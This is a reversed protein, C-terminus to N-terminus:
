IRNKTKINQSTKLDKSLVGCCIARRLAQKSNSCVVDIKISEVYSLRKDLTHVVDMEKEVNMGIYPCHGDGKTCEDKNVKTLVLHLHVSLIDGCVDEDADNTPKIM